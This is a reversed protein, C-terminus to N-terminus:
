KEASASQKFKIAVVGEPNREFVTVKEVEGFKASEDEIDERLEQYEKYNSIDKPDFCHKLIVIRLGRGDDVGENWSLMKDKLQQQTNAITKPKKERPIYSSGKIQFEAKQVLINFGDRFEAGDLLTIANQVSPELLYTVIGDGKLIGNEDRYLKVKPEGTDPDPKVIGCKSFYDAVEKETVDPPINKFYVSTNNKILKKLKERERKRKKQLRKEEEEKLLKLGDVKSGSNPDEGATSEASVAGLQQEMEKLEDEANKEDTRAQKSAGEAEAVDEESDDERLLYEKVAALESAPQEKDLTANWFPTLGDILGNSVLNSLAEGDFPGHMAGNDDFYFWSDHLKASAFWNQMGSRSVLTDGDLKKIEELTVPGLRQDASTSYWWDAASTM